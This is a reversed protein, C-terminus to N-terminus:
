LKYIKKLLKYAKKAVEENKLRYVKYGAKKYYKETKADYEKQEPTSHYGGDIEFIIKNKADVFDPFRCTLLTGYIGIILFMAQPELSINCNKAITYFLREYYPGENNIVTYNWFTNLHETHYELYRQYKIEDVTGM